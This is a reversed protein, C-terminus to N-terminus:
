IEKLLFIFIWRNGKGPRLVSWIACLRIQRQRGGSEPPLCFVSLGCRDSMTDSGVHDTLRQCWDNENCETSFCCESYTCRHWFCYLSKLQWFPIVPHSTIRYRFLIRYSVLDKRCQILFNLSQQFSANQTELKSQFIM